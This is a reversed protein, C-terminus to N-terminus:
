ILGFYEKYVIENEIHAVKIVMVDAGIDFQQRLYEIEQECILPTLYVSEQLQLLKLQKLMKRFIDRQSKKLNAVDYIILRWYGDTKKALEMNAIDYKLLKKKGKETIQVVDGKIEVMKQRELRRLLQRLRWTNYKKWENAERKRKEDLYPKLLIPLGPMIISAALFTGVGLLLLVDKVKPNLRINTKELGKLM